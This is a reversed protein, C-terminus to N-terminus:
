VVEAATVVGIEVREALIQGKHAASTAKLRSMFDGFQSTEAATRQLLEDARAKYRGLAEDV